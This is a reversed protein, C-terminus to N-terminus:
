GRLRPVVVDELIELARDLDSKEHAATIAVRYRLADMPVSPYDVPALFLGKQNMERTMEFLAHQEAM